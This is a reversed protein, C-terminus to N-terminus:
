LQPACVETTKDKVDITIIFVAHSRSSDQHMTRVPLSAHLLPPPFLPLALRVALSCLSQLLKRLPPSPTVLCWWLYGRVANMNTSAIARNANGQHVLGIMEM